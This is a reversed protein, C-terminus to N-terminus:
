RYVYIFLYMIVGTWSYMFTGKKKMEQQADEFTKGQKHLEKIQKISYHGFSTNLYTYTFIYTHLLIFAVGICISGCVFM